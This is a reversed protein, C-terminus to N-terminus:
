RIQFIAPCDVPSISTSYAVVIASRAMRNIDCCDTGDVGFLKATQNSYQMPLETGSRLVM